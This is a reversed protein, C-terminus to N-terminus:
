LSEARDLFAMCRVRCCLSITVCVALSAPFIQCNLMCPFLFDGYFVGYHTFIARVIFWGGFLVAILLPSWNYVKM